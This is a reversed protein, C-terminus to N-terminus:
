IISDINGYVQPIKPVNDKIFSLDSSQRLSAVQNIPINLDIDVLKPTVEKDKQSEILTEEDEFQKKAM